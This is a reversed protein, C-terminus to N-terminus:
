RAGEGGALVLVDPNLGCHWGDLWAASLAADSWDAFAADLEAFLAPNLQELKATAAYFRSEAAVTVSDAALLTGLRDAVHDNIRQKTM